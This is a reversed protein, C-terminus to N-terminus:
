LDFALTAKEHNKDKPQTKATKALDSQAEIKTRVIAVEVKIAQVQICLWALVPVIIMLVFTNLNFKV